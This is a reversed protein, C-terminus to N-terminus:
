NTQLSIIVAYPEVDSVKILNGWTNKEKNSKIRTEKKGLNLLDTQAIIYFSNDYLLMWKDATSVEIGSPKGYGEYEIFNKTEVSRRDGKVEYKINDSTKFDYLKIKYDDEGTIEVVEVNYTKTIIERAKAEMENGFQATESFEWPIFTM